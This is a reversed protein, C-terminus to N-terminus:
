AYHSWKSITLGRLEIPLKGSAAKVFSIAQTSPEGAEDAAYM